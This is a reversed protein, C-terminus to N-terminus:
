SAVLGYLYFDGSTINGSSMIFRIADVDAATNRQGAGTVTNLSGAANVKQGYWSLKCQVAASPKFLQVVGTCYENAANGIQGFGDIQAAGTSGTQSAAAAESVFGVAYRYDSAGADYSSGNNTSTRIYLNTADTAPILNAIVIIYSSYTSSLDTFDISASSSASATAILTIGGGGAPAAWTGDGRWFTSSTADTGSNLHSVDLNGSVKTALNIATANWTGTGITGLTTISTQGTYSSSLDLNTNGAVGNANTLTITGSSTFSRTTLSGADSVVYGTGSISSLSANAFNSFWQFWVPDMIMSNPDKPNATMVPRGQPPMSRVVNVM